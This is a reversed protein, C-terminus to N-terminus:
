AAEPYSGPGIEELQPLDPHRVLARALQEQLAIADGFRNIGNLIFSFTLDFDGRTVAFGSLSAVGRISGTKARVQGSLADDLLRESLTGSTGAVPLGQRLPGGDKSAHLVAHLLRCTVRNGPDLGSGDVVVLGEAPLGMAALTEAVVRTGAATSGEGAVRLGLEKVLLEATGNDSERLLQAVLEAMPPSDTGAVTAADAPAQGSAPEGAVTVGRQRLLDTLVGAAGAPPDAFTQGLGEWVAFGDNVSLASLPGVQNAQLYRAPWSPVARVSDYRSDDGVVRGRVEAVGADVVRDALEEMSTFLAPQRTFHAAWAATGLVPDGGGVLWLDGDVVGGTPPAAAQVTTRLREGPDLHALVATGTLLKLGSAPALALDAQHEYLVQDAQTVVLCSADPGTMSIEHLAQVLRARGIPEVLLAPARRPSLLPAEVAAAALGVEGGGDSIAPPGARLGALTSSLAVVALIAPVLLRRM